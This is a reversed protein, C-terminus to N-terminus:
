LECQLLACNMVQVDADNIHAGEVSEKSPQRSFRDHVDSLARQWLSAYDVQPSFPPTLPCLSPWM